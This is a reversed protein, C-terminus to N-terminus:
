QALTYNVQVETVVEVPEGNLLTPQYRWQRVAELASEVMRPDVLRNVVELNLPVGERSIVARMLVTGEIGEAKCGPPYVPRPQAVLKTAQVNGGVRIRTPMGTASPAPALGTRQAVVTLTEKVKGLNLVIAIRAPTAASVEIGEHRALAFGEKEVTVTYGGEPLPSFSFEGTDKTAAFERQSGGIQAVTVRARPVTAGSADRVVGVLIGDAAQAVVAFGCFLALMVMFVSARRM